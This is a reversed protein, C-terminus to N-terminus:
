LKVQWHNIMVDALLEASQSETLASGALVRYIHEYREVDRLRELYIQGALGEVYVVSPRAAFELLTFTSDLAPHAGADYPLVRVSVNERASVDIVHQIQQAMVRPGGVARHLVAEDVIVSLRPPRAADLIQQRSRRDEIRELIERESLQPYACEHLARVYDPVQLLGPFVGPDFDHIVVATSELPVYEAHPLGSNEPRDTVPDRRLAAATMYPGRKPNTVGYTGPLDRSDRVPVGRQGKNM